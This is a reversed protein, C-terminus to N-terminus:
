MTAVNQTAFKVTQKKIFYPSVLILYSIAQPGINLM